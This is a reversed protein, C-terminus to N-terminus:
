DGLQTTEDDIGAAEDGREDSREARWGLDKSGNCLHEDRRAPYPRLRIDRRGEIGRTLTTM